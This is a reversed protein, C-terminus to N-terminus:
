NNVPSPVPLSTCDSEPSLNLLPRPLEPACLSSGISAYTNWMCDGIESANFFDAIVKFSKSKELKLSLLDTNIAAPNLTFFDLVAPSVTRDM